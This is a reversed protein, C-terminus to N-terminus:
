IDITDSRPPLELRVEGCGRIEHEIIRAGSYAILKTRGAAHAFTFRGGDDTRQVERPMGPGVLVVGAGKSPEHAYSDIVVGSLACDAPPAAHNTPTSPPPASSGCAVLLSVFLSKGRVM